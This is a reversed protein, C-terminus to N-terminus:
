LNKVAAMYVRLDTISASSQATWHNAATTQVMPTSLVVGVTSASPSLFSRRVTGGYSSRIDVRADTASTNAIVIETLDHFVGTGSSLIVTEATSAAITATADTVLERPANLISVAKGLKNFMANVRDGDAVATPNTTRAQGGIKLPNGVDVADNPLNGVTLQNGKLDTSFPTTNGDLGPRTTQVTSDNRFGLALVGAGSAPYPDNELKGLNTNGTGPTVSTTIDSIKGISNTGTPLTSLSGSSSM